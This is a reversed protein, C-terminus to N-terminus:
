DELEDIEFLAMQNRPHLHLEAYDVSGDPKEKYLKSRLIIMFKFSRNFDVFDSSLKARIKPRAAEFFVDVDKEKSHGVPVVMNWQRLWSGGDIPPEDFKLEEQPEYFRKIAAIYDKKILGGRRGSGDEPLSINEREVREKLRALTLKRM